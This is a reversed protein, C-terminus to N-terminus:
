DHFQPAAPEIEREDNADADKEEKEPQSRESEDARILWTVRLNRAFHELAM